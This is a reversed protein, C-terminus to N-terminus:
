TILGAAVTDNTAEDILIFSGTDRNVSYADAVLPQHTKVAVRAIDNLGVEGGDPKWGLTQVDLRADVTAVRAKVSRTTHQLVYTRAPALTTGSLWCLTASFNQRPSPAPEGVRVITDGRSVDLEDALTVMVSRGAGAHQLSEDGIAIRAVRSRGGGPLVLVEDGVALSGSEIRGAYGRVGSAEAAAGPGAAVRTPRCVWQVPLRLPAAVDLQEDPAAELLEVLTPGEYWAMRSSREVVNDGVLASIPIFRADVTMDPHQALWARFDAAIAAFCAQDFGVLDMKNVAVILQHIGLLAAITAHRRTQPQIGRRADVLLVAVDATSAATVMNRTYQEHGPADAIIFKRTATAFYRYAVDITIGQEREAVLGDTILSLDLEGLGRRASTEALTALTDSLLAKTDYLLRGILTSKGDDVSGCTLFRLVGRDDADLGPLTERKM